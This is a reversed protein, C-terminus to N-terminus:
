REGGTLDTVYDFNEEFEQHVNVTSKMQLTVRQGESRFDTAMQLAKLYSAKDTYLLHSTISPEQLGVVELLRDLRLSFGTAGVDAGFEKILGDYRGGSGLPFGTGEGYVEFVMGSYYHIHSVLLPDIQVIGQLEEMQELTLILAVFRESVDNDLEPFATILDQVKNGQIAKTFFSMFKDAKPSEKAWADIGVFNRELLATRVRSQEVEDSILTQIVHDIFASHGITIRFGSLELKRLLGSAISIVEADAMESTDGLLELGFQEFEAPRGGEQQQARFVTSSYALRLPNKEKLLKSAAVRAIPATLDPRLVLMEGQNDVLKFLSSEDLSSLKGITEFYELSPTQIFDYGYQEVYQMAKSRIHQQHTFQRPLTDRMGLPKEFKQITTM